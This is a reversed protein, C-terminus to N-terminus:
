LSLIELYCACKYRTNYIGVFSHLLQLPKGKFFLNMVNNLKHGFYLNLSPFVRSFIISFNWSIRHQLKFFNLQCDTLYKKWANQSYEMLMAPGKGAGRELKLVTTTKHLLYTQLFNPLCKLLLILRILYYFSDKLILKKM